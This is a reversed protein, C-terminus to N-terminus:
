RAKGRDGTVWAKRWVVIAELRRQTDDSKAPLIKEEDAVLVGADVDGPEVREDRGAHRVAHIGELVQGVNEDADTRVWLATDVLQQGIAPLESRDSSWTASTLVHHSAHCPQATPSGGKSTSRFALSGSRM